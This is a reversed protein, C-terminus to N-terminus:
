GPPGEYTEVEGSIFTDRSPEKIEPESCGISTLVVSLLLLLGTKKVDIEAFTNHSLFDSESSLM